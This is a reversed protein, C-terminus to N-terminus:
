PPTASNYQGPTTHVSNVDQETMSAAIRRMYYHEWAILVNGSVNSYHSFAAESACEVDNYDCYHEITLGLNEALPVTTNYPRQSLPDISIM